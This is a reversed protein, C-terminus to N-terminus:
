ALAAEWPTAVAKVAETEARLFVAVEDTRVTSTQLVTILRPWLVLDHTFVVVLFVVLFALLVLLALRAGVAVALRAATVPLRTYGNGPPVTVTGRARTLPSAM